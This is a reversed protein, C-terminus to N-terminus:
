VRSLTTGATVPLFLFSVQLYCAAARKGKRILVEVTSEGEDM